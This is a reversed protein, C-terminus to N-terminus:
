VNDWVVKELVKQTNIIILYFVMSVIVIIISYVSAIEYEGYQVYPVLLTSLTIIRGGGIILTTIYQSVSITFSIFFSMLIGHKVIPLTVYKLIQTNSAGLNYASKEYEVGAIVFYDYLIRVVYPISFFSHILSVGILTGDLGYKILNTHTLTVIAFPPAVLPLLVFLTILNKFKFNHHALAKATPFGVLLSIVGSIFAIIVSTISAKIAETEIVYQLHKITYSQPLINPYNWNNSFAYIGVLIIPIICSILFLIIIIKAMVKYKKM